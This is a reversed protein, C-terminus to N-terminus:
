ANLRSTELHREGSIVKNRGSKKAAYLADDAQKVLEDVTGVTEPYSAVGISVTIYLPGGAPLRFPFREVAQRIREGVEVARENQCDPMLVSFEEGGNRSVIDFSRANQRLVSALQKLVEDGADHGHTDNVRKFFDIDIFLISLFEGRVGQEKKYNNLVEDFTRVNNLGTLYDVRAEQRMKWMMENTKYLYINLFVALFGLPISVVSLYAANLGAFAPDILFALTVYISALSVINMLLGKAYIRIRLKSLAGSMCGILMMLLGASISAESLGYLLMRATGIIVGSLVAAVPGGFLAAIIIFVHRLDIIVGSSVNVSFYMLVIGMLGTATGLILKQVFPSYLSKMERSIVFGIIFLYSLILTSHFILDKIM